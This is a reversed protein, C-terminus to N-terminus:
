TPSHHNISPRSHALRSVSLAGKVRLQWHCRRPVKLPEGHRLGEELTAPGVPRLLHLADVNFIELEFTDEFNLVM